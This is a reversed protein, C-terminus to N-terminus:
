NFKSAFKSLISKIKDNLVQKPVAGVVGDVVEGGVFIALTPISMIGYKTATEFNEDTNLKAVKLKGSFENALQEVVPAIMRCPACWPAWFDVLVPLDSELVEAKFNQDTVNIINKDM